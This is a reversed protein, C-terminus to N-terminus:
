LLRDQLNSTSRDFKWQNIFYVIRYTPKAMYWYKCDFAELEVFVWPIEILSKDCIALYLVVFHFCSRDMFDKGEQIIFDVIFIPWM